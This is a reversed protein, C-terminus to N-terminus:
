VRGRIGVIPPFWRGKEVYFKSPYGGVFRVDFVHTRPVVLRTWLPAPHLTLAMAPAPFKSGFPRASTCPLPPASPTAWRLPNRQNQSNQPRGLELHVKRCALWPSGCCPERIGPRDRPVSNGQDRGLSVGVPEHRGNVTSTVDVPYTGCILGALLSLRPTSGGGPPRGM